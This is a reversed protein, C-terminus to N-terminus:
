AKSSLREEIIVKAQRAPITRMGHVEPENKVAQALTQIADKTSPDNLM